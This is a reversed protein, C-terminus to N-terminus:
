DHCLANYFRRSIEFLVEDEVLRMNLGYEDHSVNKSFDIALNRLKDGKLVGIKRFDAIEAFMESLEIDTMKEMHRGLWNDNQKVTQM